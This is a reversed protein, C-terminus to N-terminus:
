GRPTALIALGQYGRQLNGRPRRPLADKRDLELVQEPIDWDSYSESSLKGPPSTLWDLRALAGRLM